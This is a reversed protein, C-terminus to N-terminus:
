PQKQNAPPPKLSGSLAPPQPQWIANTAEAAAADRNLGRGLWVLTTGGRNCIRETQGNEQWQVCWHTAGSVTQGYGNQWSARHKELWNQWQSRKNEAVSRAVPVIRTGQSNQYAILKVDSATFTQPVSTATCAVLCGSFLLVAGRMM